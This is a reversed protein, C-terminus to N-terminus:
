SHQQSGKYNVFATFASQYEGVMELYSKNRFRRADPDYETHRVRATYWTHVEEHCEACLRLTQSEPIGAEDTVDRPVIHHKEVTDPDVVNNCIKCTEKAV